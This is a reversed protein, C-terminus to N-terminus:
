IIKSLLLVKESYNEPSNCWELKKLIEKPPLSLNTTFGFKNYFGKLKEFPLCWIVSKKDTNAECLFSVIKDAVGIGRYKDFVYIGGLELNNEDIYVLRGLGAKEGNVEVIVILENKYDSLKFNIEKYKSNVWDIETEKVKRVLINNM